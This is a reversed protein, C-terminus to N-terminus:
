WGGERVEVEGGVVTSEGERVGTWGCLGGRQEECVVSEAM